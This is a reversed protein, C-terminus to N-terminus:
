EEGVTFEGVCNGVNLAEGIINVTKKAGDMM